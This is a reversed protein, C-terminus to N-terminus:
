RPAPMSDLFKKREEPPLAKAIDSGLAQGLTMLKQTEERVEKFARDLDEQKYDPQAMIDKVRGRKERVIKMQQRVAPFSEEAAARAKRRSEPSLDRFSKMLKAVPPEGGMGLRGPGMHRGAVIGGLFVNATLSLFLLVGLWLKTRDTTMTM